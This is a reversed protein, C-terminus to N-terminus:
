LGNNEDGKAKAPASAKPKAAPTAKAPAAAKKALKEAAAALETQTPKKTQAAAKAAGAKAAAAVTEKRLAEAQKKKEAKDARETAAKDAAEQKEVQKKLRAAEAEADVVILRLTVAGSAVIKDGEGIAVHERFKGALLRLFDGAKEGAGYDFEETITKTKPGAPKMTKPTAKKAGTAKADAIVKGVAAGANEGEKRVIKVAEAAAIQGTAVSEKVEAPANDLVLLNDVHRGSRGIAIAIDAKSMGDEELRGVVTALGVPGLPEGSNSHVLSLNLDRMTTGEPSFAIPLGEPFEVGNLCALDVADLRHEGDHVYITEDDPLMVVAFPKHDYFGNKEMSAAIDAVRAQYEEDKVRVNFGPLVALATRAARNPASEPRVFIILESM